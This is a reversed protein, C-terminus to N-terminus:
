RDDPVLRGESDFVSEANKKWCRMLCPSATVSVDPTYKRYHTLIVDRLRHAAEHATEIPVQAIVEDHLYLLPRSGFLPSTTDVYCEFAIPLLTSKGADAALSSFMNNAFESYTMCTRMRNSVFSRFTGVGRGRDSLKSGVWDFFRSTGWTDLWIERLRKAAAVDIKDAANKAGKNVTAVFRDVGMGGLFGFNSNKAHQRATRYKGDKKNQLMEEYSVGLIAAGLVSHVDRGHNIADALKSSGFLWIEVQGFTAIEAGDIDVSTLLNGPDPIFCERLKGGRPLNQMQVGVLPPSPARSSTRGNNLLSVYSTHIGGSTGLLLSEAHGLLTNAGTYLAYAKLVDDDSDRCADADLSIGDKATRKPELGIAACAAVMREKAKKTDKSGPKFGKVDGGRVLGEQILLAHAKAIELKTEEIFERCTKEDTLFGKCSMLHLAFAARAQAAADDLLEAHATQAAFVQRTRQADLLSYTVAAAPWLELPTDILEGYRLQYTDEKSLEGLGYEVSLAALNYMRRQFVGVHNVEGDLCGRSLDILRQNLMTDVIRGDLYASFILPMLHPYARGIVANDFAINHGVINESRLVSELYDTCCVNTHHFLTPLFDDGCASVCVLRPDLCHESILESECDYAITM